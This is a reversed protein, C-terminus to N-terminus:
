PGLLIIIGYFAFKDALVAHTIVVNSSTHITLSRDFIQDHIKNWSKSTLGLEKIVQDGDLQKFGYKEVFINGLTTKGAAPSGTILLIM